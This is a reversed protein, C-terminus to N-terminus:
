IFQVMRPGGTPVTYYERFGYDYFDTWSSEYQKGVGGAYGNSTNCCWKGYNTDSRTFDGELVLWYTTSANLNVPTSFDYQIWSSITDWTSIDVNNSTALATGSPNGGSDAQITVWTNGSPSGNKKLALDVRIRSGTVSPTFSQALKLGSALARFNAFEGERYDTYQQDIEPM